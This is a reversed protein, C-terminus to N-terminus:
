SEVQKNIEQFLDGSMDSAAGVLPFDEFVETLHANASYFTCWLQFQSIELDCTDVNDMMKSKPAWNGLLRTQIEPIEKHIKPAMLIIPQFDSNYYNYFRFSVNQLSSSKMGSGGFFFATAGIGGRWGMRPALDKGAKESPGREEMSFIGEFCFCLQILLLTLNAM